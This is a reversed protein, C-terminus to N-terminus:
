LCARIGNPNKQAPNKKRRPKKEPKNKGACFFWFLFCFWFLGLVSDQYPKSGPCHQMTSVWFARHETHSFLACSPDSDDVPIDLLQWLAVAKYM